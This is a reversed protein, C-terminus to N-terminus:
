IHILSLGHETYESAKLQTGFPGTKLEAEGSAVLEGVQIAPFETVKM